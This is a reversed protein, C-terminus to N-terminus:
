RYIKEASKEFYVVGMGEKYVYHYPKDEEKM